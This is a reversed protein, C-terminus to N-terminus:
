IKRPLKLIFAVYAYDSNYEDRIAIEKRTHEIVQKTEPGADKELEKARIKLPEYYNEWDSEPLTLTDVVEFGIEEAIRQAETVKLMGPYEKSWFESVEKPPNENTWCCETVVMYGNPKLLKKWVQLAKEFGLVYASAESWVLDFSNSPLKLQDMSLNLTRIKDSLGDQRAKKDISDLFLQYNDVATVKVGHKALVMSSRGTGCGIDIAEIGDSSSPILELLRITTEESGPGLTDLGDYFKYMKEELTM